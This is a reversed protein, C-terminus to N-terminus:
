VEENNADASGPLPHHLAESYIETSEECRSQTKKIVSFEVSFYPFRQLMRM